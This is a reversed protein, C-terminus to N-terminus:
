RPCLTLLPFSHCAPTSLPPKPILCSKIGKNKKIYTRIKHCLWFTTRVVLRKRFVSGPNSYRHSKWHWVSTCHFTMIYAFMVNFPDSKKWKIEIPNSSYSSELANEFFSYWLQWYFKSIMDRLVRVLVMIGAEDTIKTKSCRLLKCINILNAASTSYKKENTVYVSTVKDCVRDNSKHEPQNTQFWM